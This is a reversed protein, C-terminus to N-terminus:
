ESYGKVIFEDLNVWDLEILVQDPDLRYTESVYQIIKNVDYTVGYRADFLNSQFCIAGHYTKGDVTYKVQQPANYYLPTFAYDAM